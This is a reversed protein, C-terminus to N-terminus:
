VLKREGKRPSYHRSFSHSRRHDDTNRQRQQKKERGEGEFRSSGCMPAKRKEWFNSSQEFGKSYIAINLM